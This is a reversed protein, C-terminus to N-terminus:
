AAAKQAGAGADLMAALQAGFAPPTADGVQIRECGHWRACRLLAGAVDRTFRESARVGPELMVAKLEFV